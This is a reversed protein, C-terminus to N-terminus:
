FGSSCAEKQFLLLLKISNQIFLLIIEYANFYGRSELRPFYSILYFLSMWAEELYFLEPM